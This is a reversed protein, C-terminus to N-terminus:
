LLESDAPAPLNLSEVLARLEQRAAVHSMSMNFRLGKRRLDILTLGRLFLERYIVREGLGGVLRFRYRKALENLVKEMQRKNRADQAGVRNRLVIWEMTGRHESQRAVKQEYVLAAYHSAREVRLTDPDVRALVDLDVFSDNIPTVLTDALAHARRSLPTDTGPTDLIVVDCHEAMREVATELRTEDDTEAEPDPRIAAYAPMPLAVDQSEMSGLRNELYRTLTAQRADLDLTGVEHGRELLAIALHLAVTSKGTGGKENGTVLM